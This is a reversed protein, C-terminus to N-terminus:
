AHKRRPMRAPRPCHPPPPTSSSDQRSRKRHVAPSLSRTRDAPFSLIMPRENDATNLRRREAEQERHIRQFQFRLWLQRFRKDKSNRFLAARLIQAAEQELDAQCLGETVKGLIELDDPALEAARRLAAIGEEEDDVLAIALLGFNCLVQPQRPDIELSWRYHSLATAPNAEKDLDHALAMQHHYTAEGPNRTLLIGLHRRAKAFQQQAIRLQALEAHVEELRSAPLSEFAALKRLTRTATRLQGLAHMRRGRALLHDVLNLKRSM